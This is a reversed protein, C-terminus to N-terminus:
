LNKIKMYACVPVETGTKYELPADSQLAPDCTITTTGIQLM